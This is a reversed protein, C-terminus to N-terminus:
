KNVLSANMKQYVLYGNGPVATKIGIYEDLVQFPINSTLM